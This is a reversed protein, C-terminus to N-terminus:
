RNHLFIFCSHENAPRYDNMRMSRELDNHWIITGARLLRIWIGILCVHALIGVAKKTSELDQGFYPLYM